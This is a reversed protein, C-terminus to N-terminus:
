PQYFRAMEPSYGGGRRCHINLAPLVQMEKGGGRVAEVLLLKGTAGPYGHVVQMRQPELGESRLATILAATRAVPYVLAARGGIGLAHRLAATVAPLDACVEHRALAQETMPNLRSAGAQRYPPNCVAWDCSGAPLVEALRRFDHAAVRWARELGNAALNDRALAALRPQIEFALGSLGPQRYSLLLPLIGCGTGLDIIRAGPPPAVFHALLVADVSFRYGHRPQLVWLRGDFLSDRTFEGATPVPGSPM